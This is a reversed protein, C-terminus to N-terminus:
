KNEQQQPQPPQVPQKMYPIFAKEYEAQVMQLRQFMWNYQQVTKQLNGNFEQVKANVEATINQWSTQVRQLDSAYEQVKRDSEKFMTQVAYNLKDNFVQYDANFKQLKEALAQQYYSIFANIKSLQQNALDVDEDTEILQGLISFWKSPDKLDASTELTGDQWASDITFNSLDSISPASPIEFVGTDYTGGNTLNLKDVAFDPASTTLATASGLLSTFNLTSPLTTSFEALKEQLVRGSAFLVVLPYYGEPFKAIAGNDNASNTVAGYVVKTVKLDGATTVTPLVYVSSNFRYWNPYEATSFHLSSSDSALGRLQPNIETAMKEVTANVRVVDLIKDNETISVYSQDASNQATQSFLYMSEPAIKMLRNIVDKVGDQLATIYNEATITGTFNQIQEKFNPM